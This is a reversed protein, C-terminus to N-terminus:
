LPVAAKYITADGEVRYQKVASPVVISIGRSLDTTEGDGLDKITAEGRTCIMMEV